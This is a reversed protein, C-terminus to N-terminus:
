RVEFRRLDESWELRSRVKAFWAEYERRAKAPSGKEDFFTQGTVANLTQGAQFGLWSDM